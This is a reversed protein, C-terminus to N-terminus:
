CDVPKYVTQGCVSGSAQWLGRRGKSARLQCLHLRECHADNPVPHPGAHALGDLVSVRKIESTLDRVFGFAPGDRILCRFDQRDNIRKQRLGSRVLGLDQGGRDPQGVDARERFHVLNPVLPRRLAVRGGAGRNLRRKRGGIVLDLDGNDSRTSAM